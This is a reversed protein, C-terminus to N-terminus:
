SAIYFITSLQVINSLISHLINQKMIREDNECNVCVFVDCRVDESVDLRKMMSCKCVTVKIENGM